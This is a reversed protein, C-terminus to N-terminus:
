GAPHTAKTAIPGSRTIGGATLIALLGAATQDFNSLPSHIKQMKVRRCRILKTIEEDKSLRQKRFRDLVKSTKMVRDGVNIRAVADGAGAVDGLQSRRTRTGCFLNPNGNNTTTITALM